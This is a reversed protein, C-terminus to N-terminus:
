LQTDCDGGACAQEGALDTRDEMEVIESINIGELLPLMELYKEETIDEFPTQLYTGGHYPLVAIGNYGNRNNWMWDIVDAWEPEKVSITCSVNNCNAGLVHGPRVWEKNFKGVRNLLDLASETRMISGEPAKQPFSAVANVHRLGEAITLNYESRLRKTFWWAKGGIRCIRLKKDTENTLKMVDMIEDELLEPAVSALYGYLAENKGLRQRRIYYPAHWAHIGSSSGVVLSSTGSPKITTCRAASNIGLMDAWCENTVKVIRAAHDLDLDLVAGSGIGTMGVGILAERETTEKWIPRLYHFDTYSAQLTGIAAASFARDNLETQNTVDSVNQETLNCMQFPRLAIECCPNTGMELDSSWYVGPEGAGSDRVIQMLDDFMDRTILQRDLIVSNNSRARYPTDVWWTGSKALMMDMDGYSFLSILAARRIGGALVADAIICCMDHAEITKLKRKDKAVKDLLKSLAKICRKLPAPGPAKGGTTILAAGKERIDSFDLKVKHKGLFYSEVVVKVADAWGEISDGVLFRRSESDPGVVKPLRAVHHTQVSYGMGTGGLLLFMMESFADTDDIPMFACNFIRNNAVEIPRGGFQLSRMSPLVKKLYVDGFVEQIEQAHEPYKRLHMNENRSVLEFWNERRSEGPLHKSYKNYVTIDSLIEVPSQKNTMVEGKYGTYFDVPGSTEETWLMDTVGGYPHNYLNIPGFTLEPWYM